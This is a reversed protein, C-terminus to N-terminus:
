LLIQQLQKLNVPKRLYMDFGCREIQNQSEESALGTLALIKAPSINSFRQSKEYQRIKRTADFGDMVPMNIDMFIASVARGAEMMSKFIEIAELGNSATMIEFTKLRQVFTVLIRLNIDNDDVLLIIPRSGTAHPTSQRLPAIISNESSTRKSVPRTASMSRTGRAESAGAQQFRQLLTESSTATASDSPNQLDNRVAPTSTKPQALLSRMAKSLRSPGIPAAVCVYRARKLETKVSHQLGATCIVLIKREPQDYEHHHSEVHSQEVIEIEPGATVVEMGFWDTVTANLSQKLALLATVHPGPIGTPVGPAEAFGSVAVRLGKLPSLEKVDFSDKVLTEEPVIVPITVIIETGQGVESQVRIKGKLTTVIKNVLSLGLGTGVSLNDEQAFATFLRHKLYEESIGQGTDSIKLEVTYRRPFDTSVKQDILSLKVSIHGETTYKLANGILNLAIRRWSGPETQFSWTPQQEIDLIIPVSLVQATALGTPNLNTRSGPHRKALQNSSAAVSAATEELISAIDVQSELSFTQGRKDKTNGSVLAKKSKERQTFHNIKAHDLLHDMVDLLTRGCSEIMSFFETQFEFKEGESLLQASALIGHLPTRLEHSISAIFDSKAKDTSIAELRQVECMVSDVFGKIFTVEHVQLARTTDATWGLFGAFVHQRDSDYLPVFVLSCAESFLESLRQSLTRKKKRPSGDESVASKSASSSGDEGSSVSGKNDFHFIRGKPYKSALAKLINAPMTLFKSTTYSRALSSKSKTSFALRHCLATGESLNLSEESTITDSSSDTSQESGKSLVANKGVPPSKGRRTQNTLQARENHPVELFCTAELGMSERILNSARSFAEAVPATTTSRIQSGSDEVASTPFLLNSTEESGLRPQDELFRVSETAPSTLPTMTQFDAPVSSALSSIHRKLSKESDDSSPSTSFDRRRPKSRSKIASLDQVETDVTPIFDQGATEDSWASLSQKGEIFHALGELLRQARSHDAKLRVTDLHEVVLDAIERLQQFDDEPSLHPVEDTVCISGFVYGSTTLLPVELYGRLATPFAKILDSRESVKQSSLDPVFIGETTYVAGGEELDLQLLDQQCTYTTPLWKQALLVSRVGILLDEYKNTGGNRLLSTSPTAEAIFHQYANDIISIFCRKYGLTFTALQALATLQRDVAPQASVKRLDEVHHVHEVPVARTESTHRPLKAKINVVTYYKALERLRIREASSM